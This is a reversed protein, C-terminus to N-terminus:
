FFVKQEAETRESYLKINISIRRLIYKYKYINNEVKNINKYKYISNEAM